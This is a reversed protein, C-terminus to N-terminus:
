LQELVQSPSPYGLRHTIRHTCHTYPFTGLLLSQLREGMMYGRLSEHGCVM